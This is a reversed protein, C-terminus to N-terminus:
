NLGTTTDFGEMLNFCEVAQGASGKILNDISSIVVVQNPISTRIVSLQCNNTFNVTKISPASGQDLVSVFASNQYYSTYMSQLNITQPLESFQIYITAYIGRMTPILHPLFNLSFEQGSASALVEMIEPMHRHGELAYAKFDGVMEDSLSSEVRPRGAGSIGSKADINISQTELSSQLLPLAGLISATPYCGPIAVLSAKKIEESYLETLGYVSTKLIDKAQHESGYWKRWLTTNKIRFDASLDIIKIDHELYKQVVNMSFGHPTALFITECHLFIEDDPSVFNLDPLNSLSSYAKQVSKNILERSSVAHLIAGQHGSIIRLLEEGAYGSAGIVGVKKISSNEKM